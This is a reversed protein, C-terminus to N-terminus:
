SAPRWGPAARARAAFRPGALLAVVEATIPLGAALEVHLWQGAPNV